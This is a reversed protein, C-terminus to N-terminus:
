LYHGLFALDELCEILALLMLHPIVEFTISLWMLDSKFKFFWKKKNSITETLIIITQKRM